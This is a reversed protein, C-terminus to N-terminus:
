CLHIKSKFNDPIQFRSNSIQFKFNSIQSRMHPQAAFADGEFDLTRESKAPARGM